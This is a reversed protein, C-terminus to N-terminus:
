CNLPNFIQYNFNVPEFFSCSLIKKTNNLDLSSDARYWSTIKNEEIYSFTLQFQRIYNVGVITMESIELFCWRLLIIFFITVTLLYNYISMKILKWYLSSMPSCSNRLFSVINFSFSTKRVSSKIDLLKQFPCSDWYSM